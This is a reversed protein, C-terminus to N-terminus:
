FFSWPNRRARRYKKHDQIVEFSASALLKQELDRLYFKVSSDAGIHKKIKGKNVNQWCHLPKESAHQYLCVSTNEKAKWSIEVEDSCLSENTSLVCLRPKVKVGIDAAYVLNFNAGCSLLFAISFCTKLM